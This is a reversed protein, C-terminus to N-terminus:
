QYGVDIEVRRSEQSTGTFDTTGRASRQIRAPAVGNAVLEDSVVQARARSIDINAQSSGDPDAYGVVIVPQTPHRMAFAAAGDVVSKASTDLQASWQQYFVVYRSTSGEGAACGGLALMLGVAFFRRM